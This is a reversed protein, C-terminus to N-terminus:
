FPGPLWYTYSSERTAPQRAHLARLLATGGARARSVLSPRDIQPSETPLPECDASSRDPVSLGIATLYVKAQLDFLPHM